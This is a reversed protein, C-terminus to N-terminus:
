DRHIHVAEKGDSWHALRLCSLGIEARCVCSYAIHIYLIDEVNHM